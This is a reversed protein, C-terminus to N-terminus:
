DKSESTGIQIEQYWIMNLVRLKSNRKMPIPTKSNLILVLPALSTLQMMEQFRFIILKRLKQKIKLNRKMPIVQKDRRALINKM